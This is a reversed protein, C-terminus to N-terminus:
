WTKFISISIGYVDFFENTGYDFRINTGFSPNFYESYYLRITFDTFDVLFDQEGIQVYNVDGYTALGGIYRKQWTFWTAGLGISKTVTNKNTVPDKPHGIDYNFFGGFIWHSNLYYNAALSIRDFFVEDFQSQEHLYGLALQLNGESLFNYGVTADVRYRPYIFDASGGSAGAGLMLRGLFKQFQVGGGVGEDDWRQSRSVDFRLSYNAPQSLIFALWQGNGNGYPDSFHAFDVGVEAYYVNSPGQAMAPACAAAAALLAATVVLTV